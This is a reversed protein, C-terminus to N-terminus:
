TKTHIGTDSDVFMYKHFVTDHEFGLKYLNGYAKWEDSYIIYGERIRNIIINCLTERNRNNVTQM